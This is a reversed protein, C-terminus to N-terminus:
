GQWRHSFVFDQLRKAIGSRQEFAMEDKTASQVASLEKLTRQRELLHRRHFAETFRQRILSPCKFGFVTIAGAM